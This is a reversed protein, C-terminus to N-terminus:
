AEGKLLNMSSRIVCHNCSVNVVGSCRMNKFKKKNQNNVVKLYNCTSKENDDATNKLYEAVKKEDPFYGIDNDTVLSIDNPDTNKLYQGLHFNGDMTKSDQNLHKLEPPTKEWGQEMNFGDEPCALCFQVISGPMRHPFSASLNHAQGSQKDLRLKRWIRTSLLFQPHPD